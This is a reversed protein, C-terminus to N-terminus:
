VAVDGEEKVNSCPTCSVEGKNGIVELCKCVSSHGVSCCYLRLREIHTVFYEFGKVVGVWSHM